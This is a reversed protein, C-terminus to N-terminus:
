PQKQCYKAHYYIDVNKETKLFLIIIVGNALFTNVAAQYTKDPNIPIHKGNVGLIM